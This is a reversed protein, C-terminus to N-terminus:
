MKSYGSVCRGVSALDNHVNIEGFGARRLMDAVAEDQGIGVEFILFGGANLFETVRSIILRYCDLGDVGGDLALHPEFEKVETQLKDIDDTEIYPPNSIIVDFSGTVNEFWSSQIFQARDELALAKANRKAMRLAKSSLDVGTGKVTDLEALLTLLLCGSGTGLDLLSETKKPLKAHNLVAEILTESDPRPDLVDSNVFFERSWFERKGLIHSVPERRSRRDIHKRFLDIEVSTLVQEPARFLIERDGGLISVLLVSADRRAGEISFRSLFRSAEM